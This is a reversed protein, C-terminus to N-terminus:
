APYYVDICDREFNGDAGYIIRSHMWCGRDIAWLMHFETDSGKMHAGVRRPVSAYVGDAFKMVVREQGAPLVPGAVADVVSGAIEDGYRGCHSVVSYANEPMPALHRSDEADIVVADLDGSFVGTRAILEDPGAAAEDRIVIVEQLDGDPAAYSAGVTLRVDRRHPHAMFRQLSFPAATAAICACTMVAVGVPLFQFIFPLPKGLTGDPRLPRALIPSDSSSYHFCYEIADTPTASDARLVMEHHMTEVDEDANARLTYRRFSNTVSRPAGAAPGTRTWVGLWAGLHLKLSQWQVASLDVPAQPALAWSPLASVPAPQKETMKIGGPTNHQEQSAVATPHSPRRSAVRHPAVAPCRARLPRAAPTLLVPTSAAFAPMAFPIHM